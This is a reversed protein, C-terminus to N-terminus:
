VGGARNNAAVSASIRGAVTLAVPHRALYEERGMGGHRRRLHEMVKGVRVDGCELCRVYDRGEVMGPRWFNLPDAMWADMGAQTRFRRGSGYPCVFAALRGDVKSRTAKRWVPNANIDEVAMRVWADVMPEIVNWRSMVDYEWLVLCEIGASKYAAVVEAEHSVSAIGIVKESHYWDGLLEIVYKTRHKLRDMRRREKSASLASELVNDPFVMFDPNLDRVVRGCKRVGVKTRVFRGGYGTYVVNACTHEDFFVEQASPGAQASERQRAFVEETQMAHDAGYRRQSTEVAKRRTEDTGGVNVVGYRELNTAERKEQTAKMDQKALRSDTVVLATLKLGRGVEVAIRDEDWGHEDKLHRGIRLMPVQCEPCRVYDKGEIYKDPHKAVCELLHKGEGGFIFWEGCVSCQRAGRRDRIPKYGGKARKSASQKEVVSKLVVLADPYKIQYDEATMGHQTELHSTLRTERFGCERCTIFDEEEKGKLYVAEERREHAHRQVRGELRGGCYRCTLRPEKKPKARLKDSRSDRVKDAVVKADLYRLHYEGATIGHSELHRSLTGAELGCVRCKVFDIGEQM